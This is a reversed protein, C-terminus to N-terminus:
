YVTYFNNINSEIGTRNSRQDSVFVIIEQFHGRLPWSPYDGVGFRTFYTSLGQAFQSLSIQTNTNYVTNVESRKTTSTLVSNKYRESVTFSDPVFNAEAGGLTSIGAMNYHTFIGNITYMAFKTDTDDLKFVQFSSLSNMVVTNAAVTAFMNHNNFFIAPKNNVVEIQGSNYIMPQLNTTSQILNRNSGTQDYWTTVFGSGGGVFSTLATTDLAGNLFGIDQETNDSSRRVRVASGSYTTNIKRLSYGVVTGSYTNLIGAPAPTQSPTMTVTPTMTVLPTTPPTVSPTPTIL